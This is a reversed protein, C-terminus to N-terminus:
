CFYVERQCDLLRVVVSVNPLWKIIPKKQNIQQLIFTWPDVESSLMNGLVIRNVEGAILPIQYIGSLLYGDPTFLPVITWGISTVQPVKKSMNITRLDVIIHSNKDFPVQQYTSFGQNFRPSLLPGEWDMESVLQVQSPDPPDSYLGGPPNMMFMGIYPQASPVNHLGDLAFKFGLEPRYRAFYAMNLLGM